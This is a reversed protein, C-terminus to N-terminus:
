FFDHLVSMPITAFINYTIETTTNTICSNRFSELVKSQSKFNTVIQTQNADFSTGMIRKQRGENVISNLFGDDM